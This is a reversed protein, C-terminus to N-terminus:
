TEEKKEGLNKGHPSYGENPDVTGTPKGMTGNRTRWEM